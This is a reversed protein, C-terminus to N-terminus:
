ANNSAEAKTLDLAALKQAIVWGPHRIRGAAFARCWEYSLDRSRAFARLERAKVLRQLHRRVVELQAKSQVMRIIIRMTAYNEIAFDPILDFFAGTVTVPAYNM